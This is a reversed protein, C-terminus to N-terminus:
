VALKLLSQEIQAVMADLTHKERVERRANRSVSEFLTRDACLERIARACDAADGASFTMATERHRFLEGSGGTTTGVVALGCHIAELPTIAFPEDWESPFVLVDHEAYIRPLEARPVQGLFQVRGALGLREPLARLKAEYDPCMGGGALSFTLNEFGREQAVQAFAAIATHVGKQPIMQGVYLLRKVPWRDRPPVHFQDPEIGWHAVVSYRPAFPIGHKMATQRLFDSCFHCTQSAIVPWGRVLFTEGFLARILAALPRNPICRAGAREGVSPSPRPSSATLDAMGCPNNNNEKTVGEDWGEGASSFSSFPAPAAWRHLWAAIRWSVFNTDSLFFATRCGHWRATFPLWLSLGALNWFYVLDPQFTSVARLLKRSEARKDHPPDDAKLVCHLTREVDPGTEPRDACRFSSTLVRVSHGRARLREVVDRCGLEYGGIHHPPYLNSVVLIKM